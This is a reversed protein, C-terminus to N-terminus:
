ARARSGALPRVYMTAAARRASTGPATGLALFALFPAAATGGVPPQCARVQLRAHELSGGGGADAANGETTCHDQVVLTTCLAQCALVPHRQEAPADRPHSAPVLAAKVHELHGESTTNHGTTHYVQEIADHGLGYRSPLARCRHLRGVAQLRLGWAMAHMEAANGEAVTVHESRANGCCNVSPYPVRTTSKVRVPSHADHICHKTQGSSTPRENWRQLTQGAREPHNGVVMATLNVLSSM